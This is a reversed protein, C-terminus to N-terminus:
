VGSAAAGSLAVAGAARRRRLRFDRGRGRSRDGADAVRDAHLSTTQGTAAHCFSHGGDCPGDWGGRSRASVRHTAATTLLLGNTGRRHAPPLIAAGPPAM